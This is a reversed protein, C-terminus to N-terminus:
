AMHLRIIDEAEMGVMTAAVAAAAAGIGAVAVGTAVSNDSAVLKQCKEASAGRRVLLRVIEVRYAQDYNATLMRCLSLTSESTLDQKTIATNTTCGGLSLAVALIIPLYKM